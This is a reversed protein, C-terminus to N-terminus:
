VAAETLLYATSKVISVVVLGVVVAIAVAIRTLKKPM